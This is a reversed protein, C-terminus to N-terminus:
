ETEGTLRIEEQQKGKERRGEKGEYEHEVTNM